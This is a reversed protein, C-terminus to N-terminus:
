VACKRHVLEDFSQTFRFIYNGNMDTVANGLYTKDGNGIYPGGALEAISRDYEDFNLTLNAGAETTCRLRLHDAIKGISIKDIATVSDKINKASLSVTKDLKFNTLLNNTEANTATENLFNTTPAKVRNFVDVTKQPLQVEDTLNIMMPKFFDIPDPPNPNSGPVREPYLITIVEKLKDIKLADLLKKYTDIVVWRRICPNIICQNSYLNVNGYILYDTILAPSTCTLILDNFDKDSGADNSEIDFIFNGSAIVPFKIRTDSLRFGNGPDNLIVISWQTGTVTVSDSNIVADYTGNGSSAGTVIYKQAFAAEISKVSITWNGQMSIIM